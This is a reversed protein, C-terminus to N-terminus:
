RCFKRFLDFSCLGSAIRWPMQMLLANKRISGLTCGACAAFWVRFGTHFYAIDQFQLDPSVGFPFAPKRLPFIETLKIILWAIRLKGESGTIGRKLRHKTGVDEWWVMQEIKDGAVM